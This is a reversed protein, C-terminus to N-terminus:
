QCYKRQTWTNKYKSYNNNYKIQMCITATLNYFQAEDLAKRFLNKDTAVSELTSFYLAKSEPTLQQWNRLLIEITGSLVSADNPGVKFAGDIYSLVELSLGDNYSAIRALDIWTTPWSSRLEISKQLANKAQAYESKPLYGYFIGLDIINAKVHHYHPDSDYYMLAKDISTLARSLEAESEIKGDRYWQQLSENANTYFAHAAGITYFYNLSIFSFILLCAISLYRKLM